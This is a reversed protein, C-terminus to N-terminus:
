CVERVERVERGDAPSCVPTSFIVHPENTTSSLLKDLVPVTGHFAYTHTHTESYSWEARCQDSLAM